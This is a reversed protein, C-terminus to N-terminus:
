RSGKQVCLSTRRPPDKRGGVDRPLATTCKFHNLFPSISLNMMPTWRLCPYCDQEESLQFLLLSGELCAQTKDPLDPDKNPQSHEQGHGSFWPSLLVPDPFRAVWHSTSSQHQWGPVIRSIFTYMSYSSMSCLSGLAVNSRLVGPILNQPSEPEWYPHNLHVRPIQFVKFCFHEYTDVCCTAPSKGSHM